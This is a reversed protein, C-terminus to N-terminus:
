YLTGDYSCSKNTIRQRRIRIRDDPFGYITITGHRNTCYVRAEDGVATEYAQVAEEHPHKFGRHLGASIVIREPTVADLRPDSTGNRSGHHSAKLVETDLLMPHNAVWGTGSRM